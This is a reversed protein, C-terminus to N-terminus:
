PGRRVDVACEVTSGDSVPCTALLADGRMVDFTAEADDSVWFWRIFSVRAWAHRRGCYDPPAGVSGTDTDKLVEFCDGGPMDSTPRSGGAWLRTEFILEDGDANTQVFRLGSVDVDVDDRNLM